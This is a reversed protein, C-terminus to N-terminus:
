KVKSFKAFQSAIQGQAADGPHIVVRYRFRFQQGKELTMSGDKTKDNEFDHVGFPNAAFLGYARSHWYTPHRPNAPHDLIAVGIAAGDLTGVYDVWPARKGWVAKEGQKGDSTTMKGNGPAKEQLETRLRIAFMGEKTDGFVAKEAATLTIDFDIVRDTPHSYFTMVRSENLLNVGKADHWEFNASITGSKKGGKVSVVKRTIVDGRGATGAGKQNKENAWFDVQNVLGHTIWLGRHHPHDKADGNMLEMPFGRTIQKGGATRLPHLYPKPADAGIYFDTFPKGDITVSIRGPSEQFQVQPFAAISFAFLVYRM